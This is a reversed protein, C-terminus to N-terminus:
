GGAAPVTASVPAASSAPAAPVAAPAPLASGKLYEEWSRDYDTWGNGWELKRPTGTVIVPDGIHTIGWLWRANETSMNTCGHSVNRKGQAWVSWPAAHLYQGSDTIKQTWSVPTRYPDAPDTSVFVESEAKAMVVMAGSSSPTSPKGLSIPITRAVVDRRTVTLTHTSDDTTMVIKEGITAHITLDKAGYANGGMPLGGTGLRVTLKTGEQWYEKARYHVEQGNFWHWAGLQAPESTVFLRREVTARQDAPVNSGFTVVIPLAVGYTRGDSLPTNVSVTRNPKAMTTFTVKAPEARGPTMVTATYATSYRLQSAPVWASGDARLGGDVAAGSADTVTITSGAAMGALTLETSTPVNRAGDAPATIGVGAAVGAPVEGGSAGAGGDQWSMRGPGGCGTLLASGALLAVVAIVRAGTRM